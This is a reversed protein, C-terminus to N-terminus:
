AAKRVLEMFKEVPFGSGPDTHTTRKFARSVVAHTTFGRANPDSKLAHEDLFVAPIHFKPMLVKGCLNAANTMVALSYADEWQPQTQNAYGALEIHIGDHNAGPAGYAVDKCQVCQVISDNDVCYHASAPRTLTQFYKAVAEATTGKEPAEMSHLVIKLPTRADSPTYYKAQIFPIKDFRISM